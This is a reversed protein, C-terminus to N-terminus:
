DLSKTRGKFVLWIATLIFGALVSIIVNTTLSPFVKKYSPEARDVIYIGAVPSELIKQTKKMRVEFDNQRELHFRYQLIATGLEVNEKGNNKSSTLQDFNFGLQTNPALLVM